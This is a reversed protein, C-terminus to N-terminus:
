FAESFVATGDIRSFRAYNVSGTGAFNYQIGVIAAPPDNFAGEFAKKGNVHIVLKKDRVRCALTVWHQMDCGFASLDAESGKIMTSGAFLGLDAVCGPISLPISIMGEEYLITVRSSQCIASGQKFDSKLQIEFTFGDNKLGDMDRVYYYSVVPPEPQLPINKEKIAPLPLSLVGNRILEKAPFYVPIHDREVLALWGGSPVLLDHEKVVRDGILLKAKFFGPRYYISLHEHRDKPVATRRRVDWSQQIFVSDEGAALADYNFIVSNPIGKALPQSSFSFDAPSVNENKSSSKWYVLFLILFIVVAGAGALFYSKFRNKAPSVGRGALARFSEPSSPAVSIGPDRHLSPGPPTEVSTREDPPLDSGAPNKMKFDRWNEYGAFVALTNLTTANPMNEYRVKGWVRKLTSVSLSVKTREFIRQGLMEYDQNQWTLPNGWGLQQEILRRCIAM